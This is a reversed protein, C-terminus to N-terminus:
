DLMGFKNFKEEAKIKIVTKISHTRRQENFAIDFTEMKISDDDEIIQSSALIEMNNRIMKLAKKFEKLTCNRSGVMNIEKKIVLGKDFSDIGKRGGILVITGGPRVCDVADKMGAKSGTTEIVVDYFDKNYVEVDEEKLTTLLINTLLHAPISLTYFLSKIKKAQESLETIVCQKNFWKAIINTVSLDKQVAAFQVMAGIAGDGITLLTQGYKIGSKNLAHLAVGLPETLVFQKLNKETCEKKTIKKIEVIKPLAVRMATQMFGNIQVGYTMSNLCANPLKNKCAICKGCDNFYPYIVAKKKTKFGGKILTGVVEHGPIVNKIALNNEGLWTKYDSGCVGCYEPMFNITNPDIEEEDILFSEKKDIVIKYNKM